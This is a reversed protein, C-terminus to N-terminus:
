RIIEKNEVMKSTKELSKTVDWAPVDIFEANLKFLKAIIGSSKCVDYYECQRNFKDCSTENMTWVMPDQTELYDAMMPLYTGKIVRVVNDKWSNLQLTDYSIPVRKFKEHPKLTKPFGIKNVFLYTSQTAYVYNKFQNSLENTEHTRAFSKHDMPVRTYKVDSYLLDIKGSMHIRIDDDEYLLYLIPGEVEHITLDQDVPRWYDYYSEMTDLVMDVEKTELGTAITGAEKIKLLAASVAYDYKAGDKLAQYYIENGLHVLTGKDLADTRADPHTKNKVYRLFYRQECLRLMDYQSADIVINVKKKLIEM